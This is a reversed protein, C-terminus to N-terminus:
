MHLFPRFIYPVFQLLTVWLKIICFNSTKPAFLSLPCIFIEPELFADNGIIIMPNISNKLERIAYNIRDQDIPIKSLKRKKKAKYGKNWALSTHRM